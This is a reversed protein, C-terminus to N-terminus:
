LVCLLVALLTSPARPEAPRHGRVVLQLMLRVVRPMAQVARLNTVWLSPSCCAALLSLVDQATEFVLQSTTWLSGEVTLPKNIHCLTNSFNNRLSIIFIIRRQRM